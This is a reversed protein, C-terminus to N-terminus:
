KYRKQKNVGNISGTGNGSSDFDQFSQKILACKLKLLNTYRDLYELNYSRVGRGNKKVIANKFMDTTLLSLNDIEENIKNYTSNIHDPSTFHEYVALATIIPFKKTTSNPSILDNYDKLIKHNMYSAISMAGNCHFNNQRRSEMVMDEIQKMTTESFKPYETVRQQEEDVFRIKQLCFICNTKGWNRPDSLLQNTKKFETLDVPTEIIEDENDPENTNSLLNPEHSNTQFPPEMQNMETQFSSLSPSPSTSSSPTQISENNLVINDLDEDDNSSEFHHNFGSPVNNRNIRKSTSSTGNKRRSGGNNKKKNSKKGGLILNDM